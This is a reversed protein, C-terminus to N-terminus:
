TNFQVLTASALFASELRTESGIRGEEKAKMTKHSSRHYKETEVNRRGDAEDRKVRTRLTIYGFRKFVVSDEPNPNQKTEDNDQSNHRADKTASQMRCPTTSDISCTKRLYERCRNCKVRDRHSTCNEIGAAELKFCDLDKVQVTFHRDKEDLCIDMNIATDNSNKICQTCNNIM